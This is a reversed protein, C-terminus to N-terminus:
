PHMSQAQLQRAHLKTQQDACMSTPPYGHSSTWNAYPEKLNHSPSQLHHDDGPWEHITAGTQDHLWPTHHIHTCAMSGAHHYVPLWPDEHVTGACHRALLMTTGPKHHPAQMPQEQVNHDRQPEVVPVTQESQHNRCQPLWCQDAYQTSKSCVCLTTPTPHSRSPCFQSLQM